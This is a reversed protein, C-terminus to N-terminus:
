RGCKACLPREGLPVHIDASQRQDGGIQQWVWDYIPPLAFVYFFAIVYILFTLVEGVAGPLASQLEWLFYLVLAGALWIGLTIRWAFRECRQKAFTRIDSM